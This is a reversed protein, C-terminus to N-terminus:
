DATAITYPSTISNMTWTNHSDSLKIGSSRLVAMLQPRCPGTLTQKPDARGPLKTSTGFVDVINPYSYM